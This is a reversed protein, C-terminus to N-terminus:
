PSETPNDFIEPVSHHSGSRGRKSIVERMHLNSHKCGDEVGDAADDVSITLILNGSGGSDSFAQYTRGNVYVTLMVPIPVAPIDETTERSLEEPIKSM